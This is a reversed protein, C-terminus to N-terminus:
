VGKLIRSSGTRNDIKMNTIPTPIIPIYLHNLVSESSRNMSENSIVKEFVRIYYLMNFDRIEM